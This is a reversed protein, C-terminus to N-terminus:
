CACVLSTIDCKMNRETLVHYPYMCNGTMNVCPNNMITFERLSTLHVLHSIENLDTINNSALTLMVISPPLHRECQRLQSIRNGHLLLQQFKCVFEAATLIVGHTCSHNETCVYAVGLAVVRV